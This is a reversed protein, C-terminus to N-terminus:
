FVTIRNRNIASAILALRQGLGLQNTDATCGPHNTQLHLHKNNWRYNFSGDVNLVEQVYNKPLNQAWYLADADFVLAFPRNAFRQMANKIGSSGFIGDLIDQVHQSQTIQLAQCLDPDPRGSSGGWQGGHLAFVDALGANRMRDVLRLEPNPNDILNNPANIMVLRKRRNNPADWLLNKLWTGVTIHWDVVGTMVQAPENMIEYMVNWYPKTATVVKTILNRQVWYLKEKKNWSPGSNYNTDPPDPPEIDCFEYLGGNAYKSDDPDTIGVIFGNGNLDKNFPNNQWAMGSNRLLSQRASLTICVVIGRDRARSVFDALRTLYAQSVNQLLYKGGLKEFPYVRVPFDNLIWARVFNIRAAKLQDLYYEFKMAYRPGMLDPQSGGGDAPSLLDIGDPAEPRLGNLEGFFSFGCLNVRTPVNNRMYYIDFKQDLPHTAGTAQVWLKTPDETPM